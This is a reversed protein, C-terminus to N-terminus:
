DIMVRNELADNKDEIGISLSAINLGSIPVMKQARLLESPRPIMM